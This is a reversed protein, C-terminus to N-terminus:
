KLFHKIWNTKLDSKYDYVPVGPYNTVGLVADTWPRAAIVGGNRLIAGEHIAGAYNVSWRFFGIGDRVSFSNSARLLGSDIITRPSGVKRGNSRVTEGDWEWVKLGLADQFRGNATAFVARAAKASAEAAAKELNISVRVGISM